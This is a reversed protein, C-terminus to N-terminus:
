LPVPDFFTFYIKKSSVACALLTTISCTADFTLTPYAGRGPVQLWTKGRACSCGLGFPSPALLDPMHDEFRMM